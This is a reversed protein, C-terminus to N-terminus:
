FSSETVKVIKRESKERRRAHVLQKTHNRPKENKIDMTGGSLMRMMAITM